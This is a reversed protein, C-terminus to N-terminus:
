WGRNITTNGCKECTEITTYEDFYIPVGSPMEMKKSWRRGGYTNDPKWWGRGMLRLPRDTAFFADEPDPKKFVWGTGFRIPDPADPIGEIM